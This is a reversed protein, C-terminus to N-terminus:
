RSVWDIFEEQYLNLLVTSEDLTIWTWHSPWIYFHENERVLDVGKARGQQVCRNIIKLSEFRLLPPHSNRSDLWNNSWHRNKLKVTIGKHYFILYWSIEGLLMWGDSGGEFLKGYKLITHWSNNTYHKSISISNWLMLKGKCLSWLLEARFVKSLINLM